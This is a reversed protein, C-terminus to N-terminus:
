LWRDLKISHRVERLNHLKRTASDLPPARDVCKPVLGVKDCLLCIVWHDKNFPGGIKIQHTWSTTKNWPKLLSISWISQKQKYQVRSYFPNFLSECWQVYCHSLKIWGHDFIWVLNPISGLARIGYVFYYFNFIITSSESLTPISGLARIGYVFPFIWYLM